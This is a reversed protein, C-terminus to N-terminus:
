GSNLAFCAFKYLFVHMPELEYELANRTPNRTNWTPNRTDWTTNRTPNRTPEPHTGPPTGAKVSVRILSSLCTVNRDVRVYSKRSTEGRIPTRAANGHQGDHDVQGLVTSIIQGLHFAYLSM